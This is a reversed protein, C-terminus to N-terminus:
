NEGLAYDSFHELLASVSRNQMRVDSDLAKKGGTTTGDVLYTIVLKSEDTVVADSYTLKLTVPTGFLGYPQGDLLRTAHLKVHVTDGAVIQMTFLVPQDVAGRPVDIMNKGIMLKGGNAGIIEAGVQEGVTAAYTVLTLKQGSAGGKNSTHAVNKSASIALPSESPSLPGTDACATVGAILAFTAMVALTRRRTCLPM